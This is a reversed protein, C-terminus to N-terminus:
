GSGAKTAGCIAAARYGGAAIFELFQVNTVPLADTDFAPVHVDHADFENDWGFAVRTQRDAGLRAM